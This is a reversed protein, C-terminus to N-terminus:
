LYSLWKKEKHQTKYRDYWLCLPFLMLVIGIWFLYAIGLNFGYGRLNPSDTIWTNFVMDKLEFGTALAAILAIIHIVYVHVIYFFLPVRGLATIKQWFNGTLKEAAALFLMAPGLMLLIFQLSPPYKNVNIFSLFTYVGNEQSVWPAPNGYINFLRLVIFLIIAGYGLRLLKKRREERSVPPLYLKGFCYGLLMIGTWPIVAYGAFFFRDGFDFFQFGHLIAWIMADVGNGEVRIGDLLNHGGVLIIGLALIINFSLHVAGALAIMGFGLAWIVQLVILSFQINFFWGFNMVTLELVILWLGRTLLFSSLEKKSKRAGVLFASTGALFVFVPACFHTIWRTFFLPVNTKELDLPNFLFADAHFYDRVHDLAMIIIVIGRLLDISQIRAFKTTTKAELTATTAMLSSKYICFDM